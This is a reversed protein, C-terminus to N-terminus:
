IQFEDQSLKFDGEGEGEGGPKQSTTLGMFSRMPSNRGSGTPATRMAPTASALRTGEQQQLLSSSDSPASYSDDRINLKLVPNQKDVISKVAQYGGGAEPRPSPPPTYQKYIGSMDSLDVGGGELEDHSDVISIQMESGKEGRPGALVNNFSMEVGSKGATDRTAYSNSTLSSNAGVYKDNYYRYGGYVALAIILFAGIFSFLIYQWLSDPDNNDNSHTEPNEYPISLLEPCTDSVPTATDPGDHYQQCRDSPWYHDMDHCICSEGDGACEGMWSCYYDVKGPVCCDSPDELEPGHQYTSCQESSWYHAEDWCACEEGSSVCYGNDNCYENDGVVCV